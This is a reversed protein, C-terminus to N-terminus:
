QEGRSFYKYVGLSAVFAGFLELASEFFPHPREGRRIGDLEILVFACFLLSLVVMESAFIAARTSHASPIPPPKLIKHIVVFLIISGAWTLVLLWFGSM